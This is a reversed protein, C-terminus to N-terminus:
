YKKVGNTPTTSTNADTSDARTNKQDVFVRQTWGGEEDYTPSVRSQTLGANWLKFNVSNQKYSSSGSSKGYKEVISKSGNKARFVPLNKENKQIVSKLDELRVSEMVEFLKKALGQKRYEEKVFISLFGLHVYGWDFQKKIKSRFSMNNNLLIAPTYVSEKHAEAPECTAWAILKENKYAAVIKTGAGLDYDTALNEMRSRDPPEGNTLHLQNKLAEQFVFAVDLGDVVEFEISDNNM